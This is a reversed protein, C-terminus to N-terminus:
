NDIDDIDPKVNEYYEETIDITKQIIDDCACNAYNDYLSTFIAQEPIAFAKLRKFHDIGSSDSNLVALIKAHTLKIFHLTDDDKYHAIFWEKSDAPALGVTIKNNDGVNNTELINGKIVKDGYIIQIDKGVDLSM